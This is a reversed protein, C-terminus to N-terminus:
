ETSRSEGDVYEMCEIAVIENDGVFLGEYGRDIPLDEMSEKMSSWYNSCAKNIKEPSDGDKLFNYWDTMFWFLEGTVELTLLKYPTNHRGYKMYAWEEANKKSFCVYLCISRPPYEKPRYKELTSEIKQKFEGKVKWEHPIASKGVKVNEEFPVIRYVKLKQVKM